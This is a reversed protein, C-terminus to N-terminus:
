LTPAVAVSLAVGSADCAKEPQVPSRTLETLGNENTTLPGTLRVAFKRVVLKANVVAAVRPGSGFVWYFLGLFASYGVPYHCWPHWVLQGAVSLDDSYGFGEAIRRAGFDYYHGDWVPEGAWALAVYLRPLLAVLFLLAGVAPLPLRPRSIM